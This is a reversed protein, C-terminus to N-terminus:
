QPCCQCFIAQDCLHSPILEPCIIGWAQWSAIKKSTTSSPFIDINGNPKIDDFLLFSWIWENIKGIQENCKFVQPNINNFKNFIWSVCQELDQGFIDSWNIWFRPYHEAWTRIWFRVWYMLHEAERSVWIRVLHVLCEARGRSETRIFYVLYKESGSTWFTVWYVSFGYM